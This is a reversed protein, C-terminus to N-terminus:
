NIDLTPNIEQRQIRTRMNEVFAVSRPNKAHRLVVDGAKESGPRKEDGVGKTWGLTKFGLMEAMKVGRPDAYLTASRYYKPKIGTTSEILIAGKVVEYYADKISQTTPETKFPKPRGAITSLAFHSYGHNQISIHPYKSAEIIAKRIRPNKIANGTVFLVVPVPPKKNVINNIFNLVDREKEASYNSCIDFTLLVENNKGEISSIVGTPDEEFKGPPMDKIQNEVEELSPYGHQAIIRDIEEKKGSKFIELLEPTQYNKKQLEQETSQSNGMNGDIDPREPTYFSVEAEPYLDKLGGRGDKTHIARNAHSTSDTVILIRRYGKKRFYGLANKINGVTSSSQDEIGSPRESNLFLRSYKPNEAIHRYAELGESMTKKHYDSVQGGSTLFAAGKSMALEAGIEARKKNTEPDGNGLVYVADYNFSSSEGARRAKNLAEETLITRAQSLQMEQTASKMALAEGMRPISTDKFNKKGTSAIVVKQCTTYWTRICSEREKPDSSIAENYIRARQKRELLQLARNSEPSNSAIFNVVQERNSIDVKLEQSIYRMFALMAPGGASGDHHSLYLLRIQDETSLRNFDTIGTKHANIEYKRANEKLGMITAYVNLYPNHRSLNGQAGELISKIFPDSSRQARPIFTKWTGDLFQGLGTASSSTNKVFPNFRSEIKIIAWLSSIMNGMGHAECVAKSYNYINTGESMSPDYDWIIEKGGAQIRIKATNHNWFKKNGIQDDLGRIAENKLNLNEPQTQQEAGQETGQESRWFQEPTTKPIEYSSGSYPDDKRYTIKTEERTQKEKEFLENLKAQDTLPPNLVYVIDGSYTSLYAGTAEDRYGIRPTGKHTLIDRHGLKYTGDATAVLIRTYEPPMIDGLGIGMEHDLGTSRNFKKYNLRLGNDSQRETYQALRRRMEENIKNSDGSLLATNFRIDKISASNITAEDKKRLEENQTLKELEAKLTEQLAKSEKTQHETSPAYPSITESIIRAGGEGGALSRAVEASYTGSATSQTEGFSDVILKSLIEYGKSNPHVNGDRIGELNPDKKVYNEYLDYIEIEGKKAIERLVANTEIVKQAYSANKHPPITVIFVKEFGMKVAKKYLDQLRKAVEEPSANGLDNTGGQIVLYPTKKPDISDLQATSIERLKASEVAVVDHQSSIKRIAGSIGNGISDGIIAIKAATKAATEITNKSEYLTGRKKTEALIYSMLNKTNQRTQNEGKNFNTNQDLVVDRGSLGRSTRWLEVFAVARHAGYTCHVFTGGGKKNMAAFAEWMRESYKEKFDNLDGTSLDIVNVGHSLWREKETQNISELIIVTHIGLDKRMKDVSKEINEKTRINRRKGKETVTYNGPAGGRYNNGNNGEIKTFRTSYYYEPGPSYRNPIEDETVPMDPPTSYTSLPAVEASMDTRSLDVIAPLRDKQDLKKRPINTEAM